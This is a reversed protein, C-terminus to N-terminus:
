ASERVILEAPFLLHKPQNQIGEILDVIMRVSARAQQAFPHRMTTLPVEISAAIASDDFGAIAIDHPIRRGVRRIESIAGTAMLDSAIFLADIDPHRTLLLNAGTRGSELSWDGYAVLSKRYRAGMADRYGALRYFGGGGNIPGAITAIQKHGRGILYNMMERAAMRDDAAVWSVRDEYGLPHGFTVIPLEAEVLHKLLPEHRYTGHIIAGDVHGSRLYEALHVQSPHDGAAMVVLHRETEMLAKSCIGIITSFNPDEFLREQAESIVFAVSRTRRTALSRATQNVTFKLRDIADNVAARAEGSVYREGNLVRSVTGRSVGAAIAVDRITAKRGILSVHGVATENLNQRGQEDVMERAGM